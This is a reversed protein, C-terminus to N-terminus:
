GKENRLVITIRPFSGGPFLLFRRGEEGEITVGQPMVLEKEPKTGSAATFMELKNAAPFVVIAAAQERREVRNMASTLFSAASGAASALRVGALGTTLAAVSISVVVGVITVVIMMEMLTVGSRARRAM